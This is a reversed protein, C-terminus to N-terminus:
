VLPPLTYLGLDQQVILWQAARRFAIRFALERSMPFTLMRVFDKDDVQEVHAWERLHAALRDNRERLDALGDEAISRGYIDMLRDSM